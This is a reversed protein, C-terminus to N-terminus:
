DFYQNKLWNICYGNDFRNKVLAIVDFRCDFDQYDNESLFFEAVKKIRNIKKYDLAESPDGFSINNRLKVEIFIITEKEIGILDIEGYKSIYNRKIIKIGNESLYKYALEEGLAGFVKKNM